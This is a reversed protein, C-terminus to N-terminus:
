FTIGWRYPERKAQFTIVSGPHINQFPHNNATFDRVGAKRLAAIVSEIHARPTAVKDGGIKAGVAILTEAEEMTLTLTIGQVKEVRKVEQDVTARKAEAM